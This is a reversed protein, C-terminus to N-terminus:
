PPCASKSRIELTHNKSRMFSIGLLIVEHGKKLFREYYRRDKIQDIAVEPLANIKVEIIYTVQELEVVIDARGESTSYESHSDTGSLTFAVQLILHYDRETQPKIQHAINACLKRVVEIAGEIDKKRLSDRLKLSMTETNGIDCRTVISLWYIQLAREVEYNPYGLQYTNDNRNYDVITLYGAQFMLAPLPILGIDFTGLVSQNLRLSKPDSLADFDQPNEQQHRKLEEILFTPTGSSIWFNEFERRKLASMLSFPNYVRIDSKSFRYGDYWDKLKQRQVMYDAANKEAWPQIHEHFYTDLEAETYGCIDAYEDLMTIVQMNNMGSFIGAKAFSSVGTIFVFNIYEDLGKIVTFFSRISDRIAEAREKKHLAKLIPNDYEDILIAVRGFKEHLAHVVEELAMEPLTKSLAIKLGYSRVTRSLAHCLSVEFAQDTKANFLSFDLVIVGHEQWRYDSQAIYLGDFLERNGVLVEKLMSILLSKGFRRPRSLFFRRGGTILDYAHRTKDVYVYGEERLTRFTSLDIPLRKLRIAM